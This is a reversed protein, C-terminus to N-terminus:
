KMNWFSQSQIKGNEIVHSMESIARGLAEKGRYSGKKAPLEPPLVTVFEAKNEDVEPSSVISCCAVSESCPTQPPIVFMSYDGGTADGGSASFASFHSFTPSGGPSGNLISDSSKSIRRTDAVGSNPMMEASKNKRKKSLDVQAYLYPLVEVSSSHPLNLCVFNPSGVVSLRNEKRYISQDKEQNDERSTSEQTTRPLSSQEVFSKKDNKSQPYEESRTQDNRPKIGNDNIPINLKLKLPKPPLQTQRQEFMEEMQQRTEVSQSLLRSSTSPSRALRDYSEEQIVTNSELPPVANLRNYQEGHHAQYSAQSGWSPFRELRSYSLNSESNFSMGGLSHASGISDSRGLHDYMGRKSNATEIAQPASQNMNRAPVDRHLPPVNHTFFNYKGEGMPSARGAEFSFENSDLAEYSRITTLPWQALVSRTRELALTLGWRSIHLLCHQDRAGIRQMQRSGCGKVRFVEGAIRPNMLTQMQLQIVWLDLVTESEAALVMSDADTTVEFVYQKARQEARKFVKYRPFLEMTGRPSQRRWGDEKDFWQIFPQNGACYKRLVYFAKKWKKTFSKKLWGKNKTDTDETPRELWGEFIDEIDEM